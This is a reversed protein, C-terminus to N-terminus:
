PCNVEGAVVPCCRLNGLNSVAVAFQGAPCTSNGAAVTPTVCRVRNNAVQDVVQGAPCQMDPVDGAILTPNYCQSAHGAADDVANPAGQLCFDRAHTITALMDGNVDLRETPTDTAIGVMGGAANFIANGNGPATSWINTAGFTVFKVVDDFYTGGQTNSRLAGVLTGVQNCNNSEAENVSCPATIGTSGNRSYAGEGNVGHSILGFHISSAPEVITRLNEDVVNIAGNYMNFTNRRTMSETVVYTIKRGWPDITNNEPLDTDRLRDVFQGGVTHEEAMYAYPVAGILVLDNAATEVDAPTDRGGLGRCIGAFCDGPVEPAFGFPGTGDRCDPVGYGPDGPNVDLRAPCPYYGNRGVWETLAESVANLDDEAAILDRNATGVKFLTLAPTLLIGIILVIISMELLSFGKTNM